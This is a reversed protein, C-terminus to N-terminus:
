LSIKLFLNKLLSKEFDLFDNLPILKELKKACLSYIKEWFFGSGIVLPESILQHVDNLELPFKFKFYEVFLEVAEYQNCYKINFLILQELDEIDEESM